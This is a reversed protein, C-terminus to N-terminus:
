KTKRRLELMLKKVLAQTEKGEKTLFIINHNGNKDIKILEMKKLQELIKLLYAYSPCSDRLDKHPIMGDKIEALVILTKNFTIM